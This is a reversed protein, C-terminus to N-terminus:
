YMEGKRLWFRCLSTMVKVHDCLSRHCCSKLVPEGDWHSGCAPSSSLCLGRAGAPPSATAETPGPVHSESFAGLLSPHGIHSGTDEEAKHHRRFVGECVAVRGHRGSSVGGLPEGRGWPQELSLLGASFGSVTGHGGGRRSFPPPQRHEGPAYRERPM